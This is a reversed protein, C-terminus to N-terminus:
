PKRDVKWNGAKRQRVGAGVQNWRTGGPEVQNWRTGGPEVPDEVQSWRAGGPKM